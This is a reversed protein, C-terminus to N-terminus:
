PYLSQLTLISIFILVNEFIKGKKHRNRSSLIGFKGGGIKTNVREIQPGKSDTTTEEYSPCIEDKNSVGATLQSNLMTVNNNGPSVSDRAVGYFTIFSM